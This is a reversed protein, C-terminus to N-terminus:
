RIEEPETLRLTRVHGDEWTVLGKHRLHTLHTHCTSPNIGTMDCVERISPPYGKKWLLRIAVVVRLEAATPRRSRTPPPM